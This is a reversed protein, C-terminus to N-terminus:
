DDSRDRDRAQRELQTIAAKLKELNRAAREGRQPPIKEVERRLNEIAELGLVPRKTKTRKKM